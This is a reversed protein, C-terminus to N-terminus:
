LQVMARPWEEMRGNRGGDVEKRYLQETIKKQFKCPHSFFSFSPTNELKLILAKYTDTVEM